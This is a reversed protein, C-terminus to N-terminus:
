RAHDQEQRDHRAATLPAAAPDTVHLRIEGFYRRGDRDPVWTQDPTPLMESITIKTGPGASERASRLMTCFSAVYLPSTFDIYCPKTESAVKVFCRDPLGLEAALSRGALYQGAEDRLVTGALRDLDAITMRWTERFVVLQDITIRPTHRYSAVDRFANVVIRSLFFAFFERLPLRRGDPAPGTLEGGDLSVPVSGVPVLRRADVGRARAFGIYHDTECHEIQVNRGPDRTWAAPFLPLLRPQGFDSVALELVRGPDAQSWTACTGALTAYGIHLEGLVALFDGDNIADASRACVHIDPSHIRALSWGPREAPFLDRLRDALEASSYNLRKTGPPAAALDFLKEWRSALTQLVEDVPKADQGHFMEMAPYWLDALTPQRGAPLAAVHGALATEYARSV